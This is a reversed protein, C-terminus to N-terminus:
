KMYKEMKTTSSFEEVWYTNTTSNTRFSFKQLSQMKQLALYIEPWNNELIKQLFDEVLKLKRIKKLKLIGLISKWLLLIDDDGLKQDNENWDSM